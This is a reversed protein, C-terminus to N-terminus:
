AHINQKWFLQDATELFPFLREFIQLRQEENMKMYGLFAANEPASIMLATMLKLRCLILQEKSVDVADAQLDKNMSALNLPIEGASAICLLRDKSQLDLSAQESFADEQSMGFDFLPKMLMSNSLRLFHNNGQWKCSHMCPKMKCDERCLFHHTICGTLYVRALVVFFGAGHLIRVLRTRMGWFLLMDPVKQSISMLCHECM